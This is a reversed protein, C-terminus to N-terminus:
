KRIFILGTVFIIAIAGFVTLSVGDEGTKPTEDKEDDEIKEFVTTLEYNNDIKKDEDWDGEATKFGLFKYGEKQTITNYEPIDRVTKGEEVLYLVGDITINYVLTVVDRLTSLNDVTGVVIKIDEPKVITSTQINIPVGANKGLEMKTVRANGLVEAKISGTITGTVDDANEGGVYLNEIKGGTVKLRANTIIGRNVTQAVKITGGNIILNAETTNGNSGGATVYTKSLDGNNITVTAKKTNAYGNGGGYVEGEEETLKKIIGGNITVSTTGTQCPANVYDGDHWTHENCGCGNIWQDAGAGKVHGVQGNNIIIESSTTNSRHLGGGHIWNVYGGNVTISSTVPTDNNHMGGFINSVTGLVQTKEITGEKWKVLAGEAGDEREVVTIKAGNAFFYEEGGINEIYEPVGVVSTKSAFTPKQLILLFTLSFLLILLTIKKM